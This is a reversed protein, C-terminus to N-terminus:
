YAFRHWTVFGREFMVFFCPTRFDSRFCDVEHMFTLNEDGSDIISPRGKKQPQPQSKENDKSLSNWPVDQTIRRHIEKSNHFERSHVIGMCHITKKQQQKLYRETASQMMKLSELENDDGNRETVEDYFKILVNLNKRRVQDTELYKWSPPLPVLKPLRENMWHKTSRPMNQSHKKVAVFNLEQTAENSIAPFRSVDVNKLHSQIQQQTTKTQKHKAPSPIM